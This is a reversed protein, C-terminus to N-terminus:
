SYPVIRSNREEWQFSELNGGGMRIAEVRKDHEQRGSPGNLDYSKIIGLKIWEKVAEKNRETVNIFASM